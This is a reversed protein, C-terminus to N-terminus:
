VALGVIKRCTSPPADVSMIYVARGDAQYTGQRLRVERPLPSSEGPRQPELFIGLQDGCIWPELLWRAGPEEEGGPETQEAVTLEIARLREAQQWILFRREVYGQPETLLDAQFIWGIPTRVRSWAVPLGRLAQPLEGIAVLKSGRRDVVLLNNKELLLVTACPGSEPAGGEPGLAALVEGHEDTCVVPKQTPQAVAALNSDSRACGIATAMVFALCTVKERRLRFRQM